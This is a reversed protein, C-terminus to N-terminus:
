GHLSAWVSELVTHGAELAKKLKDAKKFEETSLGQDMHRKVSRLSNMLEESYKKKLVGDPDQRLQEELDSMKLREQEM